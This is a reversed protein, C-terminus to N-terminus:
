VEEDSPLEDLKVVDFKNDCLLEHIYILDKINPVELPSLDCREAEYFTMIELTDGESKILGEITDDRDEMKFANDGFEIYEGSKLGTFAPAKLISNIINMLLTNYEIRVTSTTKSM